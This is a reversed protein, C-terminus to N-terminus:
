HFHKSTIYSSVNSNLHAEAEDLPFKSLATVRKFAALVSKGLHAFLSHSVVKKINKKKSQATMM